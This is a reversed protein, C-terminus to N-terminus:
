RSYYAENYDSGDYTFQQYNDGTLALLMGGCSHSYLNPMECGNLLEQYAFAPPFNKVVTEMAELSPRKKPFFFVDPEDSNDLVIGLRDAMDVIQQKTIEPLHKDGICKYGPIHNQTVIYRSREALSEIDSGYDNSALEDYNWTNVAKQAVDENCAVACIEGHRFIGFLKQDPLIQAPSKVGAEAMAAKEFAAFTLLGTLGSLFSRRQVNM